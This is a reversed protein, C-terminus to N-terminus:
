EPYYKKEYEARNIEGVIFVAIAGPGTHAGIVPGMPTLVVRKAAFASKISEALKTADAECDCHSITVTDLEAGDAVCRRIHSVLTDLATKRGRVKDKLKLSGEPSVNLLPKVSLLSGAVASFRSLRGGRHLFKLDDVTFFSFLYNKKQNIWEATEAASLGEEGKEVALMTLLGHGATATLSDIPVITREPYKESVERAAGVANEYSGSLQGSLILCIIDTGREAYKTFFEVYDGPNIQTTKAVGGAKLASYFDKASIEQFSGGPHDTDDLSFLMPIIDINNDKIYQEPLDCSSDVAIAFTRM